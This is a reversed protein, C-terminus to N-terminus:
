KSSQMANWDSSTWAVPDKTYDHTSDYLAKAADEGLSKEFHPTLGGIWRIWDFFTFLWLWLLSIGILFGFVVVGGWDHIGMNLASGLGIFLVIFGLSWWGWKASLRYVCKPCLYTTYWGTQRYTQTISSGSDKFGVRIGTRISYRDGANKKCSRCTNPGITEDASESM